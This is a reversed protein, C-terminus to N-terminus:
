ALPRAAYLGTVRDMVQLIRESTTFVEAMPVGEARAPQLRRLAASFFEFQGEALELEALIAPTAEPANKLVAHATVFESRAKELEQVAADGQVGWAAVLYFAAMRQSLMRQRGAINVLRGIPRASFQELLETGRHALPLVKGAQAVVGAARQRAPREGVLLAKYESWAAELAAYTAKIDANPSYVKLEVLQRDFLSMSHALVEAAREPQVALGLACYAKCMRQSLMRQRGAKNIADNVDLVQAALPRAAALAAVTPPTLVFSRRAIM